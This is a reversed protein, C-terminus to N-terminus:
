RSLLFAITVFLPLGGLLYFANLKHKSHMVGLVTSLPSNDGIAKTLSIETGGLTLVKELRIGEIVSGVLLRHYWAADVFRFAAWLFLGLAPIVLSPPKDGLFGMTVPKSDGYALFTTGLVFTLATLWLARIRWSLDNFHQQVDIAKEMGGFTTEKGRRQSRGSQARFNFQQLIEYFGKTMVYTPKPTTEVAALRESEIDKQTWHSVRRLQDYAPKEIAVGYEAHADMVGVAQGMAVDKMLSDGIYLVQDLPVDFQSLIDQLIVPSPKIIGGHVHRHDTRKLSMDAAPDFRKEAPSIDKPADHDSSSYLADIIGDLGLKTIRWKTWYSQAETYAVIPVGASKVARLTELVGEYLRTEHLRASNQKHLVERFIVFPDKDGCFDAVSPLEYLLWSYESTGRLQHVTRIEGELQERGVGLERVLGELLADFSAYWAHFWDWLTNDLDSVLLSVTPLSGQLPM